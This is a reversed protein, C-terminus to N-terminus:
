FKRSGFFYDKWYTDECINAYINKIIFIKEKFKDSIIEAM